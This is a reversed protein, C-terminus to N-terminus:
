QESKLAAKLMHEVDFGKEMAKVTLALTQKPIILRHFFRVLGPSINFDELRKGQLLQEVTIYGGDVLRVVYYATLKRKWEGKANKTIMETLRVPQIGIDRAIKALMRQERYNILIERIVPGFLELSDDREFYGTQMISHYKNKVLNYVNKIIYNQVESRANNINNSRM